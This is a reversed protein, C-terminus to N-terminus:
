WPLSQTAKAIEEYAVRVPAGGVDLVVADAEASRVTGRVQALRDDAGRRLILVSRGEVRDFARQDRLPYDVGPTTVELRYGGDLERLADLRQGLARSLATCQDLDAGGKRDVVVRVLLAPGEGKVAVEVLDLDAAAALPAAHEAVRADVAAVAGGEALDIFLLFHAGVGV